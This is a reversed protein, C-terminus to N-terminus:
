PQSRRLHQVLFARISARADATAVPDYGLTYGRYTVTQSRFQDFGHHAGPYVKYIVARGQQQLRAATKVCEGPPTWDDREGLLLLVPIATNGSFYACDPYFAVAVQFAGSRPQTSIATLAAMAGHSWGMVGIRDRDVFPLARLYALAQFADGAVDDVTHRGKLCLDTARRPSLTDVAFAVYGDAKLLEAQAFVYGGLGGCAPLLVIAPFPGNGEPRYLRGAPQATSTSQVVAESACALLSVALGLIAVARQWHLAGCSRDRCLHVLRLSLKM